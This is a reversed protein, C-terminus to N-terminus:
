FTAGFDIKHDSLDGASNATTVKGRVYRVNADVRSKIGVTDGNLSRNDARAPLSPLSEREARGARSATTGVSALSAAAALSARSARSAVEAYEATSAVAALSAVSGVSAVSAVTGASSTLGVAPVAAVAAESAVSAVSAVTASQITRTAIQSYTTGDASGELALAVNSGVPLPVDSDFNITIRVSEPAEKAGNTMDIAATTASGDSAPLAVEKRLLADKINRGFTKDQINDSM